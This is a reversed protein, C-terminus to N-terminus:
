KKRWNKLDAKLNIKITKEMGKLKQTSVNFSKKKIKTNKLRGLRENIRKNPKKNIRM